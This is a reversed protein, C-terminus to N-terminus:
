VIAFVAKKRMWHDGSLLSIAADIDLGSMIWTQFALEPLSTSVSLVCAAVKAQDGSLVRIAEASVDSRTLIQRTRFSMPVESRKERGPFTGGSTRRARKLMMTIMATARNKMKRDMNTPCAEWHLIPLM